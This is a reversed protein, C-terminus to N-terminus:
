PKSPRACSRLHASWQRRIPRHAASAFFRTAPEWTITFLRATPLGSTRCAHARGAQPSMAPIIPTPDKAPNPGSAPSDVYRYGAEIGLIETVKRQEVDFRGAMEARTAAGEPTDDRVNPQYAARWGLRGQM